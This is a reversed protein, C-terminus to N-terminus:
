ATECAGKILSTHGTFRCDNVLNGVRAVIFTCRICGSTQRESSLHQLGPGGARACLGGRRMRGCGGRAATRGLADHRGRHASRGAARARACCAALRAPRARAPRGGASGAERLPPAAAVGASAAGGLGTRDPGQATGATPKSNVVARPGPGPSLPGSHRIHAAPAASAPWHRLTPAPLVQRPELVQRYGCYATHSAFGSGQFM